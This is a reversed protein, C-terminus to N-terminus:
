MVVAALGLGALGCVLGMIAAWRPKRKVSVISCLFAALGTLHYAELRNMVTGSHVALDEVAQELARVRESSLPVKNTDTLSEVFLANVKSNILLRAPRLRWHVIGYLGLLYWTLVLLLASAITFPWPSPQAITKDPGASM